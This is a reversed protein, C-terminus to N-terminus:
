GPSLRARWNTAVPVATRAAPLRRVEEGNRAPRLACSKVLSISAPHTGASMATPVAQVQPLQRRFSRRAAPIVAVTFQLPPGFRDGECALLRAVLHLGIHRAASGVPNDQPGHIRVDGDV